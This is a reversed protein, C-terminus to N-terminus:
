YSFVFHTRLRQLRPYRKLKLLRLLLVIPAGMRRWYLGHTIADKPKDPDPTLREHIHQVDAGYCPSGDAARCNTIHPHRGMSSCVLNCMMPAGEDVSSFKRGGLELSTGDPGDVAWRTQTMSGHSTEHEQQTHGQLIKLSM